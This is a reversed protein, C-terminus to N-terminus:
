IGMRERVADAAIEARARAMAEPHLRDAEEIMTEPRAPSGAEQSPNIPCNPCCAPAEDTCGLYHHRNCCHSPADLAARVAQLTIHLANYESQMQEVTSALNVLYDALGDGDVLPFLDAFAKLAENSATAEADAAAWSWPEDEPMGLLVVVSEFPASM